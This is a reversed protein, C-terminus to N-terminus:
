VLRQINIVSMVALIHYSLIQVDALVRLRLPVATAAAAGWLPFALQEVEVYRPVDISENEPNRNHLVISSKSPAFLHEAWESKGRSMHM